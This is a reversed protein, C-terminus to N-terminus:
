SSPEDPTLEIQGPRLLGLLPAPLRMRTATQHIAERVFPYAAMVGVRATFEELVSEEVVLPEVYDYRTAVDAVFRGEPTVVEMVCRVEVHAEDARQLVRMSQRSRSDDEGERREGSIRLISVDVLDALEVFEVVDDVHRATEDLDRTRGAGLGDPSM